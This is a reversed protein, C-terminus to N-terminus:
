KKKYVYKSGFDWFVAFYLLFLIWGINSHFTDVAFEPSYLIGVLMLSYVRLINFLLTGFVGILFVIIMNKKKFRSWDLVLLFIFLSLFLLLSDVGSCDKSIGVIFNGVGLRPGAGRNLNLVVDDFSLSLLLYITKSIFVSLPKWILGFIDILFSYIVFVVTFTILEKYFKWIFLHIFKRGFISYALLIIFGLNFIYKIITTTLIHDMFFTINQRVIFKFVYHFVLMALSLIGFVIRDVWTSQEIQILSIKKRIFIIFIVSVFIASNIFRYKSLGTLFQFYFVNPLSLYNQFFTTHRFFLLIFLNIGFLIGFFIISNLVLISLSKNKLYKKFISLYNKM